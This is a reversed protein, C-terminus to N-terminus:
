ARRLDLRRARAGDGGTGREPRCAGRVPGRDRKRPIVSEVAALRVIVAEEAVPGHAERETPREEIAEGALLVDLGLLVRSTQGIRLSCQVLSFHVRDVGPEVM